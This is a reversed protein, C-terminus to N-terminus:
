TDPFTGWRFPVPLGALEWHGTTTDKGKSVESAFGWIAEPREVRELGPPQDGTSAEAARGIGLRVMHPIALPGQRLGPRDARGEACAAAVHGLTDAGEDGYAAADPAGGVGVSDMVLLFARAM